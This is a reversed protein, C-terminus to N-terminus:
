NKKIDHCYTVSAVGISITGCVSDRTERTDKWPLPDIVCRGQADIEYQGQLLKIFRGKLEETIVDSPNFDAPNLDGGFKFQIDLPIM